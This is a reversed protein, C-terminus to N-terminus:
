DEEIELAKWWSYMRGDADTVIVSVTHTGADLKGTDIDLTDGPTVTTSTAFPSADPYDTRGNVYWTYGGTYGSTATVTRTSGASAPTDLGDIDVPEATPQSVDPVIDLDESGRVTLTTTAGSSGFDNVASVRYTYTTGLERTSDVYTTTDAELAADLEAFNSEGDSSREVAYFLETEAADTWSLEVAGSLEAAALDTPATPADGGLDGDPAVTNRCGILLVLATLVPILGLFRNMHTSRWMETM